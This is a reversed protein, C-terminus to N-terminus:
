PQVLPARGDLVWAVQDGNRRDLLKRPTEIRLGAATLRNAIRIMDEHTRAVRLMDTQRVAVASAKAWGDEVCFKLESIDYRDRKAWLTLFASSYYLASDESPPREALQRVLEVAAALHIAERKLVGSDSAAVARVLTRVLTLPGRESLVSDLRDLRLRVDRCVAGERAHVVFRLRGGPALVRAAEEITRSEDAYEFGFQAALGDLSAAPYPLAALDVGGRFRIDAFLGAPDTAHRPPDIEAADVAEIHWVVGRARARAACLRAVVGNGTALDLLRAGDPFEDFFENWTATLLEELNVGEICSASKGSRWYASWADISHTTDTPM